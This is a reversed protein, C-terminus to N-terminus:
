FFRPRGLSQLLRVCADEETKISNVRLIITVYKAPQIM